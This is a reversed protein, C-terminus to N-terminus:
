PSPAKTEDAGDNAVGVELCRSQDVVVEAGAKAILLYGAFWSWGRAWRTWVMRRNQPGSPWWSPVGLTLRWSLSAPQVISRDTGPFTVSRACPSRRTGWRGRGGAPPKSSREGLDGGALVVAYRWSKWMPIGVSASSGFFASQLDGWSSSRWLLTPANPLRSRWRLTWASSLSARWHM